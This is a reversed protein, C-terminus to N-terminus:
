VKEFFDPYTADRDNILAPPAPWDIAFAPDDWRVGRGAAPEYFDSMMYTVEADDTLTLYGHAFGKPVYLAHRNEASLEAAAWKKFTPSDPRLDVAVDWVAGATCRVLKTEAHPDAQYHMGRLTHKRRNHAVGCQAAAADLGAAKFENRCWTRAFFGREDEHREPEVLFVGAIDLERLRM